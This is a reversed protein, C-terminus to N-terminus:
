RTRKKLSNKASRVRVRANQDWAVSSRSALPAFPQVPVGDELAQRRVIALQQGADDLALLRVFLDLLLHV